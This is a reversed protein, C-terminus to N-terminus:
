VSFIRMIPDKNQKKATKKQTKRVRMGLIDFSLQKCNPFKSILGFSKQTKKHPKSVVRDPTAKDSILLKKGVDM